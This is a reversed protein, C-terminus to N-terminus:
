GRAELKKLAKRIARYLELRIESVNQPGVEIWTAKDAEFMAEWTLRGEKHMGSVLCLARDADFCVRAIQAPSMPRMESDNQPIWQQEHYAKWIVRGGPLEVRIRDSGEVHHGITGETVHRLVREEAFWDDTM